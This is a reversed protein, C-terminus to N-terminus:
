LATWVLLSFASITKEIMSQIDMFSQSKSPWRSTWPASLRVQSSTDYSLFSIKNKHHDIKITRQWTFFILHVLFTFLFHILRFFISLFDSCDPCNKIKILPPPELSQDSLPSSDSIKQIIYYTFPGKYYVVIIVVPWLKCSINKM